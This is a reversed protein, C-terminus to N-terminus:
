MEIIKANLLAAESEDHSILLVTKEATNQNIVQAVVSKTEEDLGTFAEDLLLIDHEYFLARAIATRRKMGGSMEKVPKEIADLLGLSELLAKAKEKNKNESVLCVNSLASFDECLRDEQFVASIRGMTQVTGSDATQLGLLLNMVTSKGVGSAGMLCVREGKKIHLSFNSLVQREGFSKYVNELKIM